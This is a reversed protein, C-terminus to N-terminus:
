PQVRLIRDDAEAPTGRGDRNSTTVWLAGDPAVVVTRLRGFRGALLAQPEGARAGDLPVRWLREGRLAGVYLAGRAVAAGSPSAESTPWTVVPNTYRGGAADGRGEVQPWGYNRRPRILNVEDAQNEGLETEWLRGQADWALGQVNRHGVSWV